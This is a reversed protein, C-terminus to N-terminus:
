ATKLESVPVPRSFYYGQFYDVRSNRLYNVQFDTEVGEVLVKINLTRAMDIVCDLLRATGVDPTLSQVFLKDIKIIDIPLESLYNLNSHGTGFDDLAIAINNKQLTQLTEKLRSVKDFPERELLEVTLKIVGAPFKETLQRCEHVFSAEQIHTTTFNFSVHFPRTRDKLKEPLKQGVRAMLKRTLPIILGTQEALPIFTSPPIVDGSPPIWRALVEVGYIESSDSHVVPQYWPVIEGQEIAEALSKYLTRTHFTYKWLVLGTMVSLLASLLLPLWGEKLYRTLDFAIASDFAVAFPYNESLIITFGKQPLHHEATNIEDNVLLTMKRVDSFPHMVDAIWQASLSTLIMGQPFRTQLVLVQAGPTVTNHTVISLEKDMLSQYSTSIVDKDRFSSCYLYNNKYLAILRIHRVNLIIRELESQLNESCPASLLRAAQSAAGRAENLLNEIKNVTNYAAQENAQRTSNMVQYGTLIMGAALVAAACVATTLIKLRNKTM